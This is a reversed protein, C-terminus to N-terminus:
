SWATHDQYRQIERSLRKLILGIVAADDVYGVLPIFDPTVDTPIVFYLLGALIMGRSAWSMNFSRDRVMRFLMRVHRIVQGAAKLTGEDQLKRETRELIEDEDKRRVAPLAISM